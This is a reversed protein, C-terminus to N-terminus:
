WPFSKAVVEDGQIVIRSTPPQKTVGDEFTVDFTGPSSVQDGTEKDVLRLTATDVSFTVQASEGANLHVRKYGFLQKILRSKPQAPTSVPSMYAQIVNDGARSGTNAVSITYQLEDTPVAQTNLTWNRPGAELSLSFTTMSLGFGFPYVPTGQFYRYGRGVGVDLEMESMKIDNIYSAAYTTIPMKGGLRANDGFITSAIAEAGRVGPYFGDLIAGIDASDREATTDISGGHLLFVVTPKGLSAVAAAFAHQLAPLDINTRDLMEGEITGDIGLAVVVADADAALALANAWGLTDNVTLSKLSGLTTEGGTNAAQIALFPSMICEYENSPCLQGLYNGALALTANAHPGVVAVKKGKPLPLVGDNKLLVISEQAALLNLARSAQTDVATIPVQWYPQDAIDNFLGMRMRLALTRAVSTKVTTANCNIINDHYTPGSCVDAIGIAVCAAEADTKVYHHEKYISEIAGTDSTVYGDFGWVERLVKNLLPSACTPVGNIANYSCMIGRAGGNIVSARFAPWYTGALSYNTLNADFNFRTYGDSNELSYADFHKMTVVTKIFRPDSGGQMGDVM